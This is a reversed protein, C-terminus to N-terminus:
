FFFHNHTTKLYQKNVSKEGAQWYIFFLQKKTYM